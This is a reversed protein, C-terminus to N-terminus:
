RDDDWAAANAVAVAQAANRAADEASSRRM